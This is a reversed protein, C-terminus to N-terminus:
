SVPMRMKMLRRRFMLGGLGTALLWIGGPLPVPSASASLVVSHDFYLAVFSVGPDFGSWTVHSFVGLLDSVDAVGDDFTIITFTDGNGPNYGGLSSVHVTGNLSLNGVVDMTDFDALAALNFEILGVADQTYDGAILLKGLSTATGPQVQGFNQVARGTASDYTGTGQLTGHNQLNAGGSTSAFTTGTATSITGLNDVANAVSITGANVNVNGTNNFNVGLDFTTITNETKNYTGINNFNHPGGVNHEIFSNFANSDNFTGNNNITAGNWFRIANNNNATNGSWTTTSELNLTRGGVLVKLNPGSIAVDNAFTTSAAGSITGGTWTTLGQFTADTGAMTSGSLLFPTTHTGGNVTVTADAGVNDTSIQFTGAGSTTVNNLTHAGNRFELKAGDAINFVGSDTGGGGMLMTGANVNVTDSSNFIAGITTTTGSQKNFTGNNNFIGGGGGASIISDFANSDTFTGTNNFASATAIAIANNNNGTNGSWTINGANVSRGGSLTKTNAGTIALTSGFTTSASAAGTITGGTWTAAGQFTNSTGTMTSGSMLFTTTHTGGNVAVTADAGVNETSIQFTGAGSTTVNNLTHVGNRFELKAGDAIHFAGSDTGGGNMLMTGANVNVTATNNFVSGMSTTTNSQKNFTGDNNFTGGSMSSDFTNADTFTGTNRFISTSAIAIANNNAGTNGTWTTNGASVDRGGTLSKGNAGSITLTSGFVTSTGEAGTLTGGTWTAPGMFVQNGGTVTSGSLLFASNWTGGTITVIADAGVNDTSVQITGAGSTTVNNLTHAGNRFEMVAGTALAFSGTSTGGSQMLMTGANVNVTAANNFVSSMTTTTNTQKNFTGGNNFTGGSITSNFANADSFTGTNNFVSTSAMSITNNNAGTNGSWDTSAANVIRAGSITKATAGSIALPGDFQSIGAGTHTGGTWTSSGTLTLTGTGSITGGAQALGLITTDSNLQANGANIIATDGVGPPGGPTWNTGITWDATVSNWTLPAASASGAAALVVPVVALALWSQRRMDSSISQPFSRFGRAKYM